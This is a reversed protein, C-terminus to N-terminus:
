VALMEALRIKTDDGGCCRLSAATVDVTIADRSKLGNPQADRDKGQNTKWHEKLGPGTYHSWKSSWPLGSVGVRPRVM